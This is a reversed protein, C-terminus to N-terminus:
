VFLCVGLFAPRLREHRDLGAVRCQGDPAATHRVVSLVSRRARCFELLRDGNHYAYTM